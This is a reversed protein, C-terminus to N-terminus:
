TLLTEFIILLAIWGFIFFVSVFIAMMKINNAVKKREEVIEDNMLDVEQKGFHNSIWNPDYYKDNKDWTHEVILENKSGVIEGSNSHQTYDFYITFFSIITEFESYEDLLFINYKDLNNSVSLPKVIEAIQHEDKYILINKTKGISKTYCKLTYNGYEIVHKTDLMGNILNYFKGCCNNEKDVLNYIFSKQEGTFVWKIPIITSLFNEKVSYFTKYCINENADTILMHRRRDVDLPVDIKMWPTGALYKVENNVKIEFNNRLNSKVQEVKIIM